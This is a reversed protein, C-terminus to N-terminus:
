HPIFVGVKRESAPLAAWEKALMGVADKLDIGKFDGSSHRGLSFLLYPTLPRKPQRADSILPWSNTKGTKRKLLRRANNAIRIKEPTHSETWERYATENAAKNQNATHNYSQL